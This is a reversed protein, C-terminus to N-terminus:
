VKKKCDWIPYNDGKHRNNEWHLPQLNSIEDTGSKSVPKIHDIEWGHRTTKGYEKKYIYAGCTDRRAFNKIDDSILNGKKWVKEIIDKTFSKGIIDTNLGRPM